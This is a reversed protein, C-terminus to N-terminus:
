KAPDGGKWKEAYHTKAGVERARRNLVHANKAFEEEAASRIEDLQGGVREQFRPRDLLELLDAGQRYLLTLNAAAPSKEAEDRISAFAARMDTESNIEYEGELDQIIEAQMSTDNDFGVGPSNDNELSNTIRDDPIM